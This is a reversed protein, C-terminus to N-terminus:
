KSAVLASDSQNNNEPLSNLMVKKQSEERRVETFTERISPFPKTGLLRGRVEDMNSNLGHLFNFVREKEVM